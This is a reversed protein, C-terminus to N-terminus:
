AVRRLADVTRLRLAQVSPVAGAVVGVGAAILLSVAVAIPSISLSAIPLFGMHALPAVSLAAWTALVGSGAGLAALLVSEALVLRGVRLSSFGIAKLVALERTRERFNMMMTNGGVLAIIFVVVAAMTQMLGPIDGAAQVFQAGFANEDLCKTENPTHRFHEDIQRQLSEMAARSTCRVWFVNCGPRDFGATRRAEEFYDRRLYFSNTEGPRSILKVIVFELLLYPPVTSELTIRQGLRWGYRQALSSGVVCARRDKEWAECEAGTWGWEAYMEAFTDHDVGLSQTENQTDPVRGGFWLMGCVTSLRQREPDLAEIEARVREPLENVLAIRSQVVLRLERANLANVEMLALVLSIAAVFVGMPLAFALMTLGTRLPNRRLNQLLMYRLTM